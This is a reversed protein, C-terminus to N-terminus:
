GSTQTRVASDVLEQAVERLKVNSHQSIRRLMDFAEDSSVGEREMLIGKAEGIVERSKLAERLQDTLQEADLYAQATALLIAAHEAFMRALTRGQSDMGNKQRSYINLAGLPLERVTLPMSYASAVGNERARAAFSPWRREEDLAPSEVATGDAIAQLCPGENADYQLRDIDDVFDSSGVATVPRGDRMLTVGVGDIQPLTEHALTVVTSLVTDLTQDKLLGGAMRGLATSLERPPDQAEPM